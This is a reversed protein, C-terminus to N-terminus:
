RDRKPEPYEPEPPHQEHYRACKCEYCEGWDPDGGSKYINVGCACRADTWGPQLWWLSM